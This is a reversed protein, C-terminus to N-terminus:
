MCLVCLTARTCVMGAPSIGLALCAHLVSMRCYDKINDGLGLM